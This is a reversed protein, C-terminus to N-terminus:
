LQLPGRPRVVLGPPERRDPPLARREAAAVLWRRVSEEVDVRVLRPSVHVVRFGDGTVRESRDYTTEVQRPSGHREDSQMEGWLGLGVAYADPRGVFRGDVFVDPNVYFPTGRGRLADVWEAEPPSACGREADLVARRVLASGNRQGAEVLERLDDVTAWGDAVAGLVIGRVDRLRPTARAADYVAREVPAVRVGGSSWTTMRDLDKTRTVTVLGSSTRHEDAAVLLHVGPADPLWRLGHRRLVVLGTVVADDGARLRGAAVLEASSPPGVGTLYTGECLRVWRGARVEREASDRSVGLAALQWLTRVGRPVSAGQRRRPV